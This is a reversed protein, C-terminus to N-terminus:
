QGCGAATHRGPLKPLKEAIGLKDARGRMEAWVEDPTVGCDHWLVVLHYILDASESIVGRGRTREFIEANAADLAVTFIEAGLDKLEQVDRRTMTTPNSLISVPVHKVREVWNKLVVRTDADSRPHTIMSICM